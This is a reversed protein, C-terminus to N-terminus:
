KHGNQQEVIAEAIIADKSKEFSKETVSGVKEVYKADQRSLGKLKKKDVKGGSKIVERAVSMAVVSAPGPLAGAATTLIAAQVKPNAAYEKAKEIVKEKAIKAGKKVAKKAVSKVSKM